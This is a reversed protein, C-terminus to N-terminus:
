GLTTYTVDSNDSGGYLGATGNESYSGTNLHVWALNAFPEITSAAGREFTYAAEGFIQTANANYSSADTESFGPYIVNRSTDISYWTQAAGFSLGIKGPGANAISTGAYAGLTYADIDASSARDDDDFSANGYGAMLGLRWNGVATDAGAFLGGAATSLSGYNDTGDYNGWGGYGSLWFGPQSDAASRLRNGIADRAYHSEDILASKTSAY